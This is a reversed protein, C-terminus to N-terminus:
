SSKQSNVCLSIKGTTIRKPKKEPHTDIHWLFGSTPLTARLGKSRGTYCGERSLSTLIVLLSSSRSFLSENGLPTCPDFSILTLKLQRPPLLQLCHDLLHCPTLHSAPMAFPRSSASLLQLLTHTLPSLKCGARQVQGQKPVAWGEVCIQGLKCSPPLPSLHLHTDAKCRGVLIEKQLSSSGM